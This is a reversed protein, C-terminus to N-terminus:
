EDEEDECFFETSTMLYNEVMTFLHLWQDKLEPNYLFNNMFRSSYNLSTLSNICPIICQFYLKPYSESLLDNLIVICQDLYCLQFIKLKDSLKLYDRVFAKKTNLLSTSLIKNSKIFYQIFMRSTLKYFVQRSRFDLTSNLIIRILDVCALLKDKLFYPKQELENLIKDFILTLIEAKAPGEFTVLSQSVSYFM